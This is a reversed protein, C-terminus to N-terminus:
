FTYPIPNNSPNDCSKNAQSYNDTILEKNHEPVSNSACVASGSEGAEGPNGQFGQPGQLMARYLSLSLSNGDSVCMM